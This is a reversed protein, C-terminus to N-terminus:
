TPRGLAVLRNAIAMGVGLDLTRDLFMWEGAQNAELFYVADRHIMFDFAAFELGLANRYDECARALTIPVDWRSWLEPDFPTKRWDVGKSNCQAGFCERGLSVVRADLAGDLLEQVVLPASRWADDDFLIADDLQETFVFAQDSLAFYGASLTKVVAKGVASRFAAAETADTTVITRPITFGVRKGVRLQEVKNEARRAAWLDNMWATGPQHLTALWARWQAKDVLQEDAEWLTGPRSEVEFQRWWVATPTEDNLEADPSWTTASRSHVSEVNIRQVLAGLTTLQEVVFDAAFDRENTLV